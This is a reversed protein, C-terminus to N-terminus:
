FTGRIIIGYPTREWGKFVIELRQLQTVKTPDVGTIRFECCGQDVIEKFRLENGYIEIKENNVLLVIWKDKLNDILYKTSARGIDQGQGTIIDPTKAAESVMQALQKSAFVPKTGEPPNLLESPFYKKLQEELEKEKIQGSTNSTFSSNSNNSNSVAIAIAVIAAIAAIVPIVVIRRRV